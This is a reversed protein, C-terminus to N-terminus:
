SVRINFTINFVLFLLAFADVESFFTVGGPKLQESVTVTLHLQQLIFVSIIYRKKNKFPFFIFDSLLCTSATQLLLRWNSTVAQMPLLIMSHQSATVFNQTVSLPLAPEIEVNNCISLSVHLIHHIHGM